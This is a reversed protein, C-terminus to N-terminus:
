CISEWPIVDRLCTNEAGIDCKKARFHTGYPVASERLQYSEGAEIDKMVLGYRKKAEYLWQLWRKRDKAFKLM